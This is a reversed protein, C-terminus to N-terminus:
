RKVKVLELNMLSHTLLTWAALEVREKNQQGKLEPTLAATLSPDNEYIDIFDNLTSEMSEMLKADPEHLTIKEYNHM